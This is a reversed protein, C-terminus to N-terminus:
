MARCVQNAIDQMGAVTPHWSVCEMRAVPIFTVGLEACIKEAAEKYGVGLSTDEYCILAYAVRSNPNKAKLETLAMRLAPAYEGAHEATAYAADTSGIARGQWMDNLGGMLIITDALDEKSSKIRNLMSTTDSESRATLESGSIADIYTLECGLKKAVINRWSQNEAIVDNGKEASHIPYYYKNDKTYETDFTSYSDGIVPMTKAYGTTPFAFGSITILAFVAVILNTINKM